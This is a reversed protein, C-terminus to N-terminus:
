TNNIIRAIDEGDNGVVRRCTERLKDLEMDNLEPHDELILEVRAFLLAEEDEVSGDQKHVEYKRRLRENM